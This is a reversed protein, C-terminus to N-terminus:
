CNQKTLSYFQCRCVMHIDDSLLCRLRSWLISKFYVFFFIFVVSLIDAFLKDSIQFKLNSFKQELHTCINTEIREMVRTRIESIFTEAAKHLTLEVLQNKLRRVTFVSRCSYSANEITGVLTNKDRLSCDYCWQRISDKSLIIDFAEEVTAEFSINSVGTKISEIGRVLSDVQQNALFIIVNEANELAHHIYINDHKLYSDYNM